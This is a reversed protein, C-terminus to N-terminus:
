RGMWGGPRARRPPEKQEQRVPRIMAPFLETLAWVLADLRDPSRDGLYGQPTMLVMQDELEAFAGVHSIRQQEYLAAIPEARVHKGRSARVRIIRQTPRVARLVAEVMDGGQNEEVIIADGEFRDLTSIARRAWADPTGILSADELVYGRGDVGIGAACIGNEGPEESTEDSTVAPDVAVVIRKLAPAARVRGADLMARTWMAGPVDDLVEADLEQRGLRTGAYRDVVARRFSSALNSRNEMTGGRTVVVGEGARKLLDRIIPISRPTTTIAIRPKVGLRMGFQLQDWTEQAYRWKALEDCLALDHQPGRLQDPEVANYLTAVAGNKWTVRRKSPEYHPRQDPPYIALLGSEGEVLVDRADASTEAVLAIRKARGADVEERVWEVGCRTKGFGRGALVLWIDWDGPPALQNDRARFGRWQYVLAAAQEESLQTFVRQRQELPMDAIQELLSAATM